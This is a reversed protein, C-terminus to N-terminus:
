NTATARWEGGLKVFDVSATQRVGTIPNKQMLVQCAYHEDGVKTCKLDSVLKLQHFKQSNAETGLFFRFQPMDKIAANAEDVTPGRSGCAALLITVAIASWWRLSQANCRPLRTIVKVSVSVSPSLLM